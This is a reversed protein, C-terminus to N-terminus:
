IKKQVEAKEVMEQDPDTRKEETRLAEKENQHKLNEAFRKLFRYGVLGKM